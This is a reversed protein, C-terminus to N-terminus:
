PRRRELWDDIWEARYLVRHGRGGSCRLQGDAKARDLTSLSVNAYRAAQERNMWPSAINQPPDPHAALSV